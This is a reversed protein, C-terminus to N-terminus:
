PLSMGAARPPNIEFLHHLRVLEFLQRAQPPPNLVRWVLGGVLAFEEQISRLLDATEGDIRRLQTLDLTIVAIEPTLSARIGEIIDDAQDETLERLESVRLTDSETTIKM